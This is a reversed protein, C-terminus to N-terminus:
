GHRWARFFLGYARWQALLTRSACTPLEPRVGGSIAVTKPDVSLNSVSAGCCACATTDLNPPSASSRSVLEPPAADGPAGAAPATRILDRSSRLGYLREPRFLARHLRDLKWFASPGNPLRARARWRVTDTNLVLPSAAVMWEAALRALGSWWASTSAAVPAKVGGPWRGSPSRSRTYYIAVCIPLLAELQPAAWNRLRECRSAGCPPAGGAAGDRIRTRPEDGRESDEGTIWWPQPRSTVRRATCAPRV